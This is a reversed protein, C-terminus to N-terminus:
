SAKVPQALAQLTKVQVAVDIIAAGLAAADTPPNACVGAVIAYASAESASDGQLKASLPALDKYGADLVKAAACLAPLGEASITAIDANLKANFSTLDANIKALNTQLAASTCAALLTGVIVIGVILPATKGASKIFNLAVADIVTVVPPPLMTRFNALASAGVVAGFSGVLWHLFAGHDACAGAIVDDVTAGDALAVGALCLVVSAAALAAASLFRIM